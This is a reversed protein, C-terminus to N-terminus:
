TYSEILEPIRLYLIDCNDCSEVHCLAIFEEGVMIQPMNTTVEGLEGSRSALNGYSHLVTTRVTEGDAEFLNCRVKVNKAEADGYNYIWYDFFMESSDHLNEAWQYIKVDLLAKPEVERIVEIEESNNMFYYTGGIILILLIISTTKWVDVEVSKKM